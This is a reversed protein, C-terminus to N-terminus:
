RPKSIPVCNQGFGNAKEIYLMAKCLIPLGGCYVLCEVAARLLQLATSSDCANKATYRPMYSSVNECSGLWGYQFLEYAQTCDINWGHM